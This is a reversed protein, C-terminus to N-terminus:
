GPCQSNHSFNKKTRLGELCIGFWMEMLGRGSGEFYIKKKLENMLGIMRHQM